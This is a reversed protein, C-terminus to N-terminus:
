SKVNDRLSVIDKITQTIKQNSLLMIQNLNTIIVCGNLFKGQRHLVENFNNLTLTCTDTKKLEGPSACKSSSLVPINAMNGSPSNRQDSCDCNQIRSQWVKDMYIEYLETLQNAPLVDFCTSYKSQNCSGLFGRHLVCDTKTLLKDQNIVQWDKNAALWVLSSTVISYKSCPVM